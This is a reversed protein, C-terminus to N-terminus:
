READAQHEACVATSCTNALCLQDTVRYELVRYQLYPQQLSSVCNQLKVVSADVDYGFPHFV